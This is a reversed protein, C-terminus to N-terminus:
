NITGIAAGVILTKKPQEKQYDRAQRWKTIELFILEKWNLTRKKGLTLLLLLM